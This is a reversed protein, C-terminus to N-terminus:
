KEPQNGDWVRWGDLMPFYLAAKITRQPELAQLAKVYNPLQPTEQSYRILEADLFDDVQGSQHDGTKYD